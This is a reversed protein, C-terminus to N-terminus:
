GFAPSTGPGVQVWQGGSLRAVVGDTDGTATAVAVSGDAAGAIETAGEPVDTVDVKPVGPVITFLRTTSAGDTGLVVLTDVGAWDLDDANVIVSDVRRPAALRVAAGDHEVRALWPEVRGARRLLLAARTGDPSLAVEVISVDALGEPLGVLPVPGAVDGVIRTVTGRRARDVVWLSGDRDWTPRSLDTAGSLVRVPASAGNVDQVWLERRDIAGVAAIKTGGPSVAPETTPPTGKGFGGPVPTPDGSGDTLELGAKGAFYLVPDGTASHDPDYALWQDTPQVASAGPVPLPQGGVTIRVGSVGPVRRLTWVLQASLAARTADDAALVQPSLDVQAVGQDIPVTTLALSTGEPFASRVAPALWSTPGALLTRVLTTALGASSTVSVTVTDPVLVAYSPDFFYVPYSRFERDVDGRGVVLGDPLAAIRWQGDVQQMRYTVDLPEGSRAPQYGGDAGITGDLVGRLEVQVGTVTTQFGTADYIRVTSVPRWSAAAAPTLYERAVVYADSSSSSAALFGRVVEDPSMGTRPPQPIARYILQQDTDTGAPGREVPGSDPVQACGALVALALVAGAWRRRM